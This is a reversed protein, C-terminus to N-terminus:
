TPPMHDYTIDGTFVARGWRMPAVRIVAFPFPGFNFHAPSLLARRRVLTGALMQGDRGYNDVNVCFGSQGKVGEGSPSHIM